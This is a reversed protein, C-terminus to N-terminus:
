FTLPITCYLKSRGGVGPHWDGGPHCSMKLLFQRYVKKRGSPNQPTSGFYLINTPPQFESSVRHICSAKHYNPFPCNKLLNKTKVGFIPLYHDLKGTRMNKPHTTWGGVLIYKLNSCINSFDAWSVHCRIFWGVWNSCCCKPTVRRYVIVYSAPFHSAGSQTLSTNTHLM